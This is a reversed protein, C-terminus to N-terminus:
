LKIVKRTAIFDGSVIKVFYIGTPAKDLLRLSAAGSLQHTEILNGSKDTITIYAPNKLAAKINLTTYSSFPNPSVQLDIASAANDDDSTAIDQEPNANCAKGVLVEYAKLTTLVNVLGSFRISGRSIGYKGKPTHLILEFKGGPLVRVDAGTFGSREAVVDGNTDYAKLTINKLLQASLITNGRGLYFAVNKGGYGPTPFSIDLYSSGAVLPPTLLAYDNKNGSVANGANQVNQKAYVADGHIRPCADIIWVNYVRVRNGITALGSVRIRVSKIDLADDKTNIFVKYTSTGEILQADAVGFGDKNVIANGESDFIKVSISQLVNAGLLGNDNQIQLVVLQGGEGPHSFGVKLAGHNLVGVEARIVAYNDRNEDVANQPNIVGSSSIIQDAYNHDDTLTQSYTVTAGICMVSLAFAQLKTKM